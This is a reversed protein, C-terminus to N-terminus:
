DSFVMKKMPSDVVVCQQMVTDIRKYRQMIEEAQVKSKHFKAEGLLAAIRIRQAANIHRLETYNCAIHLAAYNSDQYTLEKVEQLWPGTLAPVDIFDPIVPPRLKTIDSIAKKLQPIGKNRRPNVQVVPVGMMRELEPVNITIGKQRAIDMM